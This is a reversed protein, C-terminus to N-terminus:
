YSLLSSLSKVYKAGASAFDGATVFGTTVGIFHLGAGTAAYFDTLADGVYLVQSPEIGHSALTSLAPTFVGPDPKHVMTDDAGQIFLFQELDFGLAEMDAVVVDRNMASLVGLLQGDRSLQGLTGLADDHITKHFRHELSYNAARMNELTDAQEYLLGIMEDFPKGWHEKLKEDTLELGYFEKATAKHHAWKIPGSRVLTDDFDFIIARYHHLSM